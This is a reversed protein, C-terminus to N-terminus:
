KKSRIRSLSVQSMGLFSATDGLSIRQQLPAYESIFKHYRETANAHLMTKLRDISMIAMNSIIIRIFSEFSHHKACLSELKNFELYIITTNELAITSYDAPINKLFSDSITVFSNDCFFKLIHQNGNHYYYHKLLGSKIFYLRRSIKGKQNIMEGKEFEKEKLNNYLEDKAENSLSSILNAQIIFENM